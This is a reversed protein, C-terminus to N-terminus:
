SRKKLTPPLPFPISLFGERIAPVPEFRGKLFPSVHQLYYYISSLSFRSPTKLPKFISANQQATTPGNVIFNQAIGLPLSYTGVVNEIMHDAQELSLGAAGGLAAAEEQSLGAQRAVQALREETTLEYFKKGSQDM